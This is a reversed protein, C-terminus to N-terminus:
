QNSCWGNQRNCSFCLLHKRRQSCLKRIYHVCVPCCRNASQFGIVKPFFLVDKGKGQRILALLKERKQLFKIRLEEYMNGLIHAVATHTHNAHMALNSAGSKPQATHVFAAQPMYKNSYFFSASKLVLPSRMLPVFTNRLFLFLIYQKM